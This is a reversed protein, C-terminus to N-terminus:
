ATILCLMGPSTIGVAESQYKWDTRERLHSRQPVESAEACQVIAAPRRDITANWIERVGDYRPDDPLVVHGRVNTRLREITENPLMTM